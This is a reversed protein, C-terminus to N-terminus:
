IMRIGFDKGLCYVIIKIVCIGYTFFNYPIYEYKDVRSKV